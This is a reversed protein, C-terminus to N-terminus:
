DKMRFIYYTRIKSFLFLTKGQFFSRLTSAVLTWLGDSDELFLLYKQMHEISMWLEVYYLQVSVRFKYLKYLTRRKVSIYSEM